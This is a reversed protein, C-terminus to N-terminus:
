KEVNKSPKKDIQIDSENLVVNNGYATFFSAFIFVTVMKYM